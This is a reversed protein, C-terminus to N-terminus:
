LYTQFFIFDKLMYVTLSIMACFLHPYKQTVFYTEKMYDVSIHRYGSDIASVIDYADDLLPTYFQLM